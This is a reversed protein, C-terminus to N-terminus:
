YKFTLGYEFKVTTRMVMVALMHLGIALPIAFQALSSLPSTPLCVMICVPAFTIGTSMEWHAPHRKIGFYDIFRHLLVHALAGFMLPDFHLYFCPAM